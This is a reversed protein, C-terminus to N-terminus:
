ERLDPERRKLLTLAMLLASGSLSAFGFPRDAILAGLHSFADPSSQEVYRALELVHDSTIRAADELSIPLADRQLRYLFRAFAGTAITLLALPGVPRLLCELLRARLPVPAQRYVQSVLEPIGHPVAAETTDLRGMVSRGMPSARTGEFADDFNEIMPVEAPIRLTVVSRQVVQAVGCSRVIDFRADRAPAVPEIFRIFV